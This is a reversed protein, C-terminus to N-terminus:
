SGRTVQSESELLTTSSGPGLGDRLSFFEMKVADNEIKSEYARKKTASLGTKADRVQVKSLCQRASGSM